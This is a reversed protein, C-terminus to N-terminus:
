SHNDRHPLASMRSESNQLRQWTPWSAVIAPYRDAFARLDAEVASAIATVADTSAEVPSLRRGFRRTLGYQLRFARDPVHRDGYLTRLLPIPPPPRRRDTSRNIWAPELAEADKPDLDVHALVRRLTKLRSTTLQELSVVLVAESPFYALYRDLQAQYRTRQVFQSRGFSPSLITKEFPKRFVGATVLHQWHSIVREVPDRVLYILRAEPLTRGVREATEPWGPYATYEPTAEGRVPSDGFQAAYWDLGREWHWTFFNLEKPESMSIEAHQALIAHLSTTGCKQAGIILLNPLLAKGGARARM